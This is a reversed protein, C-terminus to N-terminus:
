ITCTTGFRAVCWMNLKDKLVPTKGSEKFIVLTIGILLFSEFSMTELQRVM